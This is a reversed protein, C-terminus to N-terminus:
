VCNNGMKFRSILFGGKQLKDWLKHIIESGIIFQKSLTEHHGTLSFFIRYKRMSDAM